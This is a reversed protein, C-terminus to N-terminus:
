APTATTSNDLLRLLIDNIKPYINQALAQNLV